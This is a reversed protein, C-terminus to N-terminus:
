RWQSKMFVFLDYRGEFLDYLYTMKNDKLDDLKNFNHRGVHVVQHGLIIEIYLM